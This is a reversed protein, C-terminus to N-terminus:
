ASRVRFLTTFLVGLGFIVALLAVLAGLFPVLTLLCLILIGLLFAPIRSDKLISRGIVLGTTVYAIACLPILLLLLIIGLPTALVTVSLLGALIPLLIFVGVGVGISLGLKAKATRGIADAARPALLLLILGLLLMSVSFIVWLGIALKALTDGLSGGDFKKTEGAVRAGRVVRPKKDFYVLDGSIRARRGLTARGAFTVVDGGVRGRITVDGDAVIVDGRVRGRILVDGEGVFVDGKVTVGSNVRVNGSLVVRDDPTDGAALASGVPVLIFLAVLGVLLRRM